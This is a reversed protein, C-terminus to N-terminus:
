GKVQALRTLATALWSEYTDLDWGTMRTMLLYTEAAGLIASTDALWTVEAPRDLLGDRAM